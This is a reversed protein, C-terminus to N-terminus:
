LVCGAGCEGEVLLEGGMLVMRMGWIRELQWLWVSGERWPIRRAVRM